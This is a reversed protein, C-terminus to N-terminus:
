SAPSGGPVDGAGDGLFHDMIRLMLGGLLREADGFAEFKRVVPLLQDGLLIHLIAVTDGRRSAVDLEVQQSLREPFKAVLPPDFGHEPGLVYPERQGTFLEFGNARQRLFEFDQVKEATTKAPAARKKPPM